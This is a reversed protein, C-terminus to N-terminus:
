PQAAVREGEAPEAYRTITLPGLQFEGVESGMALLLDSVTSLSWKGPDDLLKVVAARKLGLRKAIQETSSETRVLQYLVKAYITHVVALRNYRMTEYSLPPLAANNSESM